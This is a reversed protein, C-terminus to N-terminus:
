NLAFLRSNDNEPGTDVVVKPLPCYTQFSSPAVLWASGSPGGTAVVTSPPGCDVNTRGLAEIVTSRPFTVPSLNSQVPLNYPRLKTVEVVVGGRQSRRVM